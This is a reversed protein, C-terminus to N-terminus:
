RETIAIFKLLKYYNAMKLRMEAIIAKLLWTGFM